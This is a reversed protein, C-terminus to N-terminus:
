RVRKTLLVIDGTYPHSPHPVVRRRAQEAYGLRRYLRLAGENQEFVEISALYCGAEVAWGDVIGMLHTGVGMGRFDPYTALMNIYFSSPVCQELEILPRIFEPMDDLSEAHEADPLRYALIM